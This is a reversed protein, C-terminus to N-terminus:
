SVAEYYYINDADDTYINGSDDTYPEITISTFIPNFLFPIEEAEDSSTGFSVFKFYLVQGALSIDLPLFYVSSLMVFPDGDDHPAAGTGLGGRVNETLEYGGGTTLTATKSQGIESVAGVTAFDSTIAWANGRAALQADTISSIQGSRMFVEIPDSPDATCDATLIGMRSPQTITMVNAFSAGYDVSLLVSCARWGPMLGCAAIYAGPTNDQTRLSPLNMPVGFTPGILGPSTDAPPGHTVGQVDSTYASQRDLMAETIDIRGSDETMEMLRIRQTHGNRDTITGIDTPTLEPRTYPLTIGFRRTESWAVKMRKDAIQAQTDKDAVIPIQITQEGDAAVTSARREVTQTTEVYGAAPDMARVHVKRLLEVEQVETEEIVPGERQVLDDLDLAFTADGGRKVLRLKDDWEGCDFFFGQMLSSLISEGTAETAVKFGSVTDTLQSVDFDDEELGSRRCIEAVIQSLPVGEVTLSLGEPSSRFVSGVNIPYENGYTWGSPVSGAAEAAAYDAEWAAQNDYLPDSPLRVPGQEYYAYQFRGDVVSPAAAETLIRFTGIVEEWRHYEVSGDNLVYWGPADPIPSAGEPPLPGVRKRQAEIMVPDPGTVAPAPTAEGICYVWVPYGAYSEGAGNKWLVRGARDGYTQSSLGGGPNPIVACFDPANGDIWEGPSQDNYVMTAFQNDTIDPQIEVASFSNTPAPNSSEPEYASYGLLTSPTIGLAYSDSFQSLIDIVSDGTHEVGGRFGRLIYNSDPEALVDSANVFESLRGPAYSVPLEIPAGDMAVVFEWTGLSGNSQTQDEDTAVMYVQGRYASANGVGLYSELTPDPLQTEGGLYFLHNDLFKGNNALQEPTADPQVNYVVKGNHTARLVGAIDSYTGDENRNARCIGLAYSRTYTFTEQEVGSGKGDDTHSHEVLDFSNLVNASNVFTGFGWPNPIGDNATVTMGDSLRPGQVKTPDIYGGIMGGIVAGLQPYGVFAGVVFGVVTGAQQGSM